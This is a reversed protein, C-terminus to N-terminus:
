EAAQAPVRDRVPPKPNLGCEARCENLQRAAEFEDLIPLARYRQLRLRTAARARCEDMETATMARHTGGLFRTLTVSIVEVRVPDPLTNLRTLHHGRWNEFAEMRRQRDIANM